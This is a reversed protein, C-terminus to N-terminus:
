KVLLLKLPNNLELSLRNLHSFFSEASKFGGKEELAAIVVYEVFANNGNLKAIYNDQDQDFAKFYQHPVLVGLGVTVEPYKEHNLRPFETGWLGMYGKTDNKSVESVDMKRFGTCFQPLDGDASIQLTMERKGAYQIMRLVVKSNGAYSEINPAVMDIVTRVPGKARVVSYRGKTAKLLQTEEGNWIRPSGVGLTNKVFLIDGGYQMAVLSDNSYWNTKELELRQHIKGYIDISCRDDFYMRYAMLNSETAPGHHMIPKYLDGTESYISDKKIFSKKGNKMGMQAYVGSEFIYQDAIEDSVKCILVQMKSKAAISVQFVLEDVIGDGDLDDLQSPIVESNFTVLLQTGNELELDAKLESLPIVVSVLDRKKDLSNSLEVEQKVLINNEDMFRNNVRSGCQIFLLTVFFLLLGININNM